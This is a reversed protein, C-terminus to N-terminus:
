PTDALGQAERNVTPAMTQDTVPNGEPTPEVVLEINGPASRPANLVRKFNQVITMLSLFALVVGGIFIAPRYQPKGVLSEIEGTAGAYVLPWVVMPLSAPALLMLICTGLKPEGECQWQKFGFFAAVLTGAILAVGISDM